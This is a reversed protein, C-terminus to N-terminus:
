ASNLHHDSFSYPLWLFCEAPALFTLARAFRASKSGLRKYITSEQWKRDKTSRHCIVKGEVCLRERVEQLFLWAQVTDGIHATEDTM